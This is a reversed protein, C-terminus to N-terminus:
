LGEKAEELLRQIALDCRERGADRAAPEDTPKAADRRERDKARAALLAEELSTKKAMFAPLNTDMWERCAGQLITEGPAEPHTLIYRMARLQDIAKTM